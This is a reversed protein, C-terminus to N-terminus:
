GAGSASRQLRPEVNVVHLYVAKSHRLDVAWPKKTEMRVAGIIRRHRTALLVRSSKIARAVSKTTITTSWRNTGFREEQDADVALRLKLLAPIDARTAFAFSLTM